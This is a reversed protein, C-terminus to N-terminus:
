CAVCKVRDESFFLEERSPAAAGPLRDDPRQSVALSERLPSPKKDNEAELMLDLGAMVIRDFDVIRDTKSAPQMNWELEQEVERLWTSSM